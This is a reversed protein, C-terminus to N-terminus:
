QKDQQCYQKDEKKRSEQRGSLDDTGARPSQPVEDGFGPQVEATAPYIRQM